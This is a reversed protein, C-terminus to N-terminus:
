VNFVEFYVDRYCTADPAANECGNDFDESLRACVEKLIALGHLYLSQKKWYIQAKIYDALDTFVVRLGADIFFKACAREYIGKLVSDSHIYNTDEMFQSAMLIGTTEM